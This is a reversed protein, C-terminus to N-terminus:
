GPQIIYNGAIISDVAAEDFSVGVPDGGEAVVREFLGADTLGAHRQRYFDQGDSETTSEIVTVDAPNM